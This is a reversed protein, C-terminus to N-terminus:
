RSRQSIKRVWYPNDRERFNMKIQTAEHLQCQELEASDLDFLALNTSREGFASGYAIGDFGEARFLEALIQTAVYDGTEDSRTVPKTFARGIESWVIGAWEEVPPVELFITQGEDSHRRCDVLAMDRTTVFLGLSIMSGIWPRVESMAAEKNTCLYLM